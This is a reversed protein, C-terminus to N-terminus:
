TKKKLSFNLRLAILFAIVSSLLVPLYAIKFDGKTKELIFSVIPILLISIGGFFMNIFGSIIGYSERALIRRALSFPLVVNGILFGSIFIDVGESYLDFPVYISFINTILLFFASVLMIKEESFYRTLYGMGTCGIIFGIILASNEFVAVEESVHYHLMFYPIGWLLGMVAFNAFSCGIFLGLMWVTRNFFCYHFDDRISINKTKEISPNDKIFFLTLLYLFIFLLAIEFVIFQWSQNNKLYVFTVSLGVDGMGSMAETVGVIIPFIASSFWSRSLYIAGVFTFSGGIGLIIRSLLAMYYNKTSALIVCSFILLLIAIGLIKKSSFKDFLLGSPTQMIVYSYLYASSFLGIEFTGISFTEQLEKTVLSPYLYMGHQIAYVASAIIWCIWPFLISKLKYSTQM